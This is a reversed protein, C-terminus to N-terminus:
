LYLGSSARFTSANQGQRGYAQTVRVGSLNEQLNANVNAIADRALRYARSSQRQYWWTAAILAPMVSGACTALCKSRM